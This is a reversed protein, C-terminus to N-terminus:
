GDANSVPLSPKDYEYDHYCFSAEVAKGRIYKCYNEDVDKRRISKGDDDDGEEENKEWPLEEKDLLIQVNAVSFPLTDVIEDVVFRELAQVLITLRGDEM